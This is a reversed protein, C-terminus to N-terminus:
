VAGGPLRMPWAPAIMLPPSPVAADFTAANRSAPTTTASEGAFIPSDSSDARTGWQILSLFALLGDVSNKPHRDQTGSALAVLFSRLKGTSSCCPCVRKGMGDEVCGVILGPRPVLRVM